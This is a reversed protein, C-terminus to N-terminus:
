RKRPRRIKKWVTTPAQGQRRLEAVAMVYRGLGLRLYEADIGLSECVMDFSFVYSHDRTDVWELADTRKRRGEFGSTVQSIYAEIGDSLLAAMLRREGGLLGKDRAELYQSPLVVDPELLSALVDGGMGLEDRSGSTTGAGASNETTGGVSSCETM